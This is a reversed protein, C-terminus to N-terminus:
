CPLSFLYLFTVPPVLLVTCLFSKTKTYMESGGLMTGNEKPDPPSTLSPSVAWIVQKTERPSSGKLIEQDSLPSVMEEPGVIVVVMIPVLAEM